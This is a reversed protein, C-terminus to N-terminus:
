SNKILRVFTDKSWGSSYESGVGSTFFDTLKYTSVSNDFEDAIESKVGYLPDCGLRSLLLDIRSKVYDQMDRKTVGNLSDELMAGDIILCERGFCHELMSIFIKYYRSDKFVIGNERFFINLSTTLAESHGDEDISSQITGKVIVPIKNNGRMQFSRLGLFNQFLLVGEVIAFALMAEIDDDSKLFKSLWKDREILEEHNKFDLFHDDNELGLVESLQRYFRSHIAIEVMNIVSALEQCEPAKFFKAYRDIWFNGVYMEYRIFLPLTKLVYHKQSETLDFNLELKDLEVKYESSFWLNDELQRRSLELIEPYKFEYGDYDDTIKRSNDVSIM